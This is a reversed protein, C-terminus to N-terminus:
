EEESTDLYQHQTLYNYWKIIKKLDKIHVRTDDHDPIIERFYHRISEDDAKSEPLALTDSKQIITQFVEKLPISDSYTYIAITELPSFQYKRSSAFTRKGTDLNEVILGNSRNGIVKYLGGLGAVAVIKELNM